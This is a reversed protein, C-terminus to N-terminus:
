NEDVEGYVVVAVGLEHIRENSFCQGEGGFREYGENVQPDVNTARDGTIQVMCLVIVYWYNIYAGGDIQAEASFAHRSVDSVLVGLCVPHM